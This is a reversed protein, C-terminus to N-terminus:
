EWRSFRSARAGHRNLSLLYLTVDRRRLNKVWGLVFYFFEFHRKCFKATSKAPLGM